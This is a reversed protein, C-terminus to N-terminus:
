TNAFGNLYGATLDPLMLSNGFGGYGSGSSPTYGTIPGQATAIAGSFANGSAQIVSTTTARKSLIVAIVGLGVIALAISTLDRVLENM